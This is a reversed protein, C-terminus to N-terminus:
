SCPVATNSMTAKGIPLCHVKGDITVKLRIDQLYNKCTGGPPPIYEVPNDAPCSVSTNGNPCYLMYQCRGPEVDELIYNTVATGINVDPLSRFFVAEAIVVLPVDLTCPTPNPGATFFGVGEGDGCQTGPILTLLNTLGFLSNAPNSLGAEDGPTFGPPGLVLWIPDPGGFDDGGGGGGGGGDDDSCVYSLIEDPDCGWWVDDLGLPDTSNLPRNGVYAYRNWSQPDAPNVAALGSPDPSLWRGQVPTHERYLFDYLGGAGGAGSSETDQNQGTFSLDQTGSPVYNEGFPAYAGSYYLSRSSTSALRSSGLWDPHRYYQLGSSNYIAQAGAPLSVFAKVLSSGNMLALKAGSPDYVIETSSTPSTTCASGKDQEVVRGLADFTQCTGSATGSDIGTLKNETDWSYAHSNDATMDGNNSNYTFPSSTIRNTNNTYDYTPLFSMGTGGGPVTKMINGFPDYSFTQSWTSAGCNASAVRGLADHTYNCTQSDAPNLQDTIVLKQLSANSNWTLAGTDTQPSSGVSYQYRTMRGTNPDFTFSDSDSSGYTLATIQGQGNSNYTVGTVPNQGSSASVTSMRGEGDTAYTMTPLGSLGSITEIAGNPWYLSSVQFYTNTGSHPTLEWVSSTQGTTSYSFGLDTIKSSCTGTCTYAEALRTKANAMSTGNVTASDYVFNKAPTSTSPYIVSGVRHYADYGSYCTANGAADLRKLMNGASTITGCSADSSLSDYSYAIASNNMEPNTESTLRGLMDFVYSRTQHGSSAQANQTVGTRDGLADYSYQTLYGTASTNQSCSAGPFGTTGSTVECVSTLRGLGDYQQQKAQTPSTLTQLVDNENYSYTTTGGGSDSASATRGLADYTYDTQAGSCSQTNSTAAAASYSLTKANNRGFSDYCTAITDYNTASPGQKTQTFITRGFGDNTTLIDVISNGSNFTSAYKSETQFQQDSSNLYYFFNTTTGAQDTTSYPRWFVNSYNSGSYATSSTNGNEDTLSLLVGGPCNWTMSRSLSLPETISTVFSNGCSASGSAYNYTTQAGNTTSSTSVDTSTKLNGTDYYTYARYLTTTANAQAAVSTLLGRSGTIAIHQPTGTTATPTGADYGYTTTGTVTNASNEVTVTATHDVIGNGLSAYSTITKQLVPGVAGIGYDYNDVESRLGYSNITTDTESQAGSANPLQTFVTTRLLPSSVATSACSSPSSVGNGNYCIITTSLLTGSTSGQYALQQTEYFNPSPVTTNGDQEFDIVTVDSASGSNVPDPPSTVQTQWHAGSVQTRAYQWEGGPSLTRTLGAASGDSEIGNSGGTYAYTIEGGTPLTVSAIRATVCNHSYTGGLPTCSGPTQEYTFTYSSNDPLTVSSVLAQSLPGYETIGSVGFNTAVTYQTYNVTYTANGGTPATYTLTTPSAPTADGAQSLVPTTSSLTDFFEGSTNSTIENGNTDTYSAGPTAIVGGRSTAWISGEQYYVTWGSGDYTTSSELEGTDCPDEPTHVRHATGLPDVFTSIFFGNV